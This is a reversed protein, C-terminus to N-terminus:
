QTGSKLSWGILAGLVGLLAVVGLGGEIAKVLEMQDGVLNHYSTVARGDVIATSQQPFGLIAGALLGIAGGAGGEKGVAEIVLDIAHSMGSM